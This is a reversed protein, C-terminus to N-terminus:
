HKPKVLPSFGSILRWESHNNLHNKQPKPGLWTWTLDKHRSLVPVSSSASNPFPHHTFPPFPCSAAKALRHRSPKAPGLQHQSFFCHRRRYKSVSVAPNSGSTQVLIIGSNLVSLVKLRGTPWCNIHMTSCMPKM